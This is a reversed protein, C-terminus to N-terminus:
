PYSNWNKNNIVKKVYSCAERWKQHCLDEMLTAFFLGTLRWVSEAEKLVKMAYEPNSKYGDFFHEADFLVESCNKKLYSISDTIMRLNEDLTTGLAENVHM